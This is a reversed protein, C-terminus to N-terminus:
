PLPAMDFKTGGDDGDGDGGDGDGDGGDGDGDGTDGDGDGTDGDGDGTDGDGDGNTSASETGAELTGGFSTGGKGDTACALAIALPFALLLTTAGRSFSDM